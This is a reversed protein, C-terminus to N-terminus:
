VTACRPPTRTSPRREARESYRCVAVFSKNLLTDGPKQADKGHRPILAAGDRLPSVGDSEDIKLHRLRRTEGSWSPAASM